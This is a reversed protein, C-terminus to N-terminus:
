TEAHRSFVLYVPTHEAEFITLLNVPIIPISNSFDMVTTGAKHEDNMHKYKWSFVIM